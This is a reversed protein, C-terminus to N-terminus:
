TSAPDVLSSGFRCLPAVSCWSRCRVPDAPRHEVRGDIERALAEAEDPTACLRHARVRRPKYVAWTEGREWREDPQCIEFDDELRVLRETIFQEAEDLSWITQPLVQFRADPLDRNRKAQTESWDVYVAHVELTDISYGLGRSIIWRYCNLQQEWEPKGYVPAWMRTLKRDILIETDFYDPQGSIHWGDLEVEIRTESMGLPKDHEAAMVHWATGIMSPILAVPDAEIVDRYREQLRLMHPPTLLSTVSIMKHDLDYRPKRVHQALALNRLWTPIESM